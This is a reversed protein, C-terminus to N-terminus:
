SSATRACAEATSSPGMAIRGRVTVDPTDIVLEEAYIGPAIVITGGPGVRDAAAALTAADQPVRITEADESGRPPTPACASAALLAAAVGLAAAVRLYRNM